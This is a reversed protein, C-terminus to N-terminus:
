IIRDVAHTFTITWVGTDITRTLQQNDSSPPSSSSSTLTVDCCGRGIGGFSDCHYVCRPLPETDSMSRAQIAASVGVVAEHM